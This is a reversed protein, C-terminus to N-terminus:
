SKNLGGTGKKQDGASPKPMDKGIQKLKTTLANKASRKEASTSSCKPSVVKTREKRAPIAHGLAYDRNNTNKNNQLRGTNINNRRLTRKM